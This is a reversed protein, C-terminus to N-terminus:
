GIYCGELDIYCKIYPAITSFYDKIISKDWGGPSDGAPPIKQKSMHCKQPPLNPADAPALGRGVTSVDSFFFLRGHNGM